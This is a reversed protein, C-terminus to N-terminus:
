NAKSSAKSSNTAMQGSVDGDCLCGACGSECGSGAMIRSQEIKTLRNQMHALSM